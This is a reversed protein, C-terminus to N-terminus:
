RLYYGGEMDEDESECKLRQRYDSKMDCQGAQLYGRPLARGKVKKKMRPKRAKKGYQKNYMQRLQTRTKGQGGHKQLFKIWPNPGCKKKGKIKTKRCNGTKKDYYLQANCIGDKKKICKRWKTASAGGVMVGAGQLNNIVNNYYNVLKNFAEKLDPPLNNNLYQFEKSNSLGNLFDILQEQTVNIKPPMPVIEKIDEIIEEPINEEEVIKEIIQEKVAEKPCTKNEYNYYNKANDRGYRTQCVNWQTKTGAKRRIGGKRVFADTIRKRKMTNILQAKNKGSMIIRQKGKKGVNYRKIANKLQPLTFQKLAGGVMVGGYDAENEMEYLPMNQYVTAQNHIPGRIERAGLTSNWNAGYGREKVQQQLVNRIRQRLYEDEIMDSQDQYM